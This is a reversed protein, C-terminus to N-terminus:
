LALNEDDMARASDASCRRGLVVQGHLSKSRDRGYYKSGYQSYQICTHVRLNM